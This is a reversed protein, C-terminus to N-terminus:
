GQHMKSAYQLTDTKQGPNFNLDKTKQGYPSKKSPHEIGVWNIYGDRSLDKVMRQLTQLRLNEITGSLVIFMNWGHDAAMAMLAEMNATKGSQVHGIVLGKIPGTQKTDKSLRRLIGISADELEKISDRNWDLSNKYLQWSSRENEPVTLGNDQHPDYLAGENGRFKINVQKEEYEKHEDVLEFWEDISIVPWDDEAVRSNLFSRLGSIDSKTGLRINEWSMNQSRRKEIWRKIEDYKPSDFKSM